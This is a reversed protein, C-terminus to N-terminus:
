SALFAGVIRSIEVLTKDFIRMGDHGLVSLYVVEILFVICLLNAIMPSVISGEFYVNICAKSTALTAM